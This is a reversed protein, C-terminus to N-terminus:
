TLDNVHVEGDIQWHSVLEHWQDMLDVPTKCVYELTIENKRSYKMEIERCPVSKGNVQMTSERVSVLAEMGGLSKQPINKMKLTFDKAPFVLQAFLAVPMLFLLVLIKKM